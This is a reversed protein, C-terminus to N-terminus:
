SKRMDTRDDTIYVIRENRDCKVIMNRADAWFKERKEVPKFIDPTYVGKRKTENVCIIELRRDKMLEYIDDIKDDMGGCVNLTGFRVKGTRTEGTWSLLRSPHHVEDGCDLSSSRIERYPFKDGGSVIPSGPIPCVGARPCRTRTGTHEQEFGSLNQEPVIFMYERFM